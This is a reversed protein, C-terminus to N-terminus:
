LSRREATIWPRSPNTRDWTLLLIQPVRLDRSLATGSIRAAQGIVSSLAAVVEHIEHDGRFDLQLEFLAFSRCPFLGHFGVDGDGIAVNASRFKKQQM